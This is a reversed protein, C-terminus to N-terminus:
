SNFSYETSSAKQLHKKMDETFSHVVPLYFFFTTGKGVESEVGLYSNHKVLITSSTALGMGNGHQKTTFFPEFISAYQEKPIGCGSDSIGVRVYCGQKLTSPLRTGVLVNEASVRVTGGNPMAQCANIVINDIVRSIQNENIACPWLDKPIIFVANVGSGTLAFGTVKRLLPGIYTMKKPIADKKALQLLQQTLSEARDFVSQAMSLRTMANKSDGAALFEHTLDLNGFIGTLLNRLDHGIGGAYFCDSEHQTMLGWMDEDERKCTIDRFVFATGIIVKEKDYLTVGGGSVTRGTGNRGILRLQRERVPRGQNRSLMTSPDDDGCNCSEEDGVDFVDTLRRNAAETCSWGTLEEAVKNMLQVTGYVDTVIIGDSINNLIVALTENAWTMERGDNKRVAPNGTGSSLVSYKMGAAEDPVANMVVADLSMGAAPKKQLASQNM